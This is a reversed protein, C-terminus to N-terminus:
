PAAKKEAPAAVPKSEPEPLSLLRHAQDAALHYRIGLDPRAQTLSRIRGVGGAMVARTVGQRKLVGVISDVQGVKVWDITKVQGALDADAEGEMAAAHVELGQAKAAQAFLFPLRGNGAILGIKQGRAGTM